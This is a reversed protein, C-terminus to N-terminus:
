PSVQPVATAALARAAGTITSLATDVPALRVSVQEAPGNRLGAIEAGTAFAEASATNGFLYVSSGEGTERDLGWIKWVLGPTEAIRRGAIEAHSRFAEAPIRLRYTVILLTQNM